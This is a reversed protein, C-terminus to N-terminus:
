LFHSRSFSNTNCLSGYQFIILSIIPGRLFGRPFYDCYLSRGALWPNLTHVDSVRIARITTLSLWIVDKVALNTTVVLVHLKQTEQMRMCEVVVVCTETPCLERYTLQILAVFRM